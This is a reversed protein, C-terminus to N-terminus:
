EERDFTKTSGRKFLKISIAILMISLAGFPLFSLFNTLYTPTGVPMLAAVITVMDPFWVMSIGLVFLGSLFTILSIPKM